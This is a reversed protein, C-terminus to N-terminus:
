PRSLVSALSSIVVPDDTPLITRFDLLVGNQEVRAVVPRPLRRLLRAIQDASRPPGSGDDTTGVRLGWSALTEGPLSGGGVASRLEVAEAAASGLTASARRARQEIEFLPTAIMRWIPVEALAEGLRYHRLTAELGALSVKDIRLARALPHRRILEISAQKGVLIGAQPGGLLKDGSFCVVSAGARVSNQVLPEDRLGFVSPDLLAGSGVDDLVEVGAGKALAVLEGVAVSHVFGEIRFNSTHVRLLLATTPAIARQYDGVYTRNTTGVEVLHVGSQAMVDPIRFGGGIEVSQGRSIVVDRGNALATLALLLAGANNNVVLADEAGTLDRLLDRAHSSRSGRQGGELDFEINSYSAAIEAMATAAAESVPARGLNTHLIVGTANIVPRLSPTLLLRLRDDVDSVIWELDIEAPHRALRERAADLSERALNLILSRSTDPHITQVRGAVRDVSPLARYRPDV